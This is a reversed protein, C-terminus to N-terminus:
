EDLEDIFKVITEVASQENEGDAQVKIKTGQKIAGGLVSFISKSDITKTDTILRIDCKFTNCLKVLKQAPRSHLGMPNKVIIEISYM